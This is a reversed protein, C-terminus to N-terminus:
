RILIIAGGPTFDCDQVNSEVPVAIGGELPASASAYPVSGATALADIQGAIEQLSSSSVDTDGIKTICSADDGLGHSALAAALAALGLAAVRSKKTEILRKM